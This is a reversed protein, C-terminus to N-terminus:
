MRDSLAKFDFHYFLFEMVQPENEIVEICQGCGQAIEDPVLPRIRLAVKM